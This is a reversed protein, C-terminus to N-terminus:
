KGLAKRGEAAEVFGVGLGKLAVADLNVESVELFRTSHSSGKAPVVGAFGALEHGDRGIVSHRNPVVAVHPTGLPGQAVSLHSGPFM